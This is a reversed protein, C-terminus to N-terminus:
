FNLMFSCFSVILSHPNGGGAGGGGGGGGCPPRCARQGEVGIVHAPQLVSERLYCETNKAPLSVNALSGDMM